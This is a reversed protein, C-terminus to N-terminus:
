STSPSVCRGLCERLQVSFCLEENDPSEEAAECGSDSLMFYSELFVCGSHRLASVGLSGGYQRERFFLQREHRVCLHELM